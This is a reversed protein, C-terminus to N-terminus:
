DECLTFDEPYVGGNLTTAIESLWPMKRAILEPKDTPTSTWPRVMGLGKAIDIFWGQHPGYSTWGTTTDMNRCYDHILEHTLIYLVVVPYPHRYEIRICHTSHTYTGGSNGLDAMVCHVDDSFNTYEQFYPQNQAEIMPKILKIAENLYEERTRM